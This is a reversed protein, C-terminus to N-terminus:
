LRDEKITYNGLIENCVTEIAGLWELCSLNFMHQDKFHYPLTILVDPKVEEDDKKPKSMAWGSRM